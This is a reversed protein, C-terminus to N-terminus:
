VLKGIINELIVVEDLQGKYKEIDAEVSRTFEQIGRTKNYEDISKEVIKKLNVYYSKDLKPNGKADVTYLKGKTYKKVINYYEGMKKDRISREFEVELDKFLMKRAKELLSFFQRRSIGLNVFKEAVKGLEKFDPINKKGTLHEALSKAMKADINAYQKELMKAVNENWRKDAKTIIKDFVDGVSFRLISGGATYLLEDYEPTGKLDHHSEGYYLDGFKRMDVRMKELIERKEKDKPSLKGKKDLESIMMSVVGPVKVSQGTPLRLDMDNLQVTLSDFTQDQSNVFDRAGPIDSRGAMIIKLKKDPFKMYWQRVGSAGSFGFLPAITDWDNSSILNELDGIIANIEANKDQADGTELYEAEEDDPSPPTGGVSAVDDLLAAVTSKTLEVLEKKSLKTEFGQRDTFVYSTGVKKVNAARTKTITKVIETPLLNKIKESKKPDKALSTFAGRSRMKLDGLKADKEDINALVFMLQGRIANAVVDVTEDPKGAEQKYKKVLLDILFSAGEDFNKDHIQSAARIESTLEDAAATNDKLISGVARTIVGRLESESMKNINEQRLISDVDFGYRKNIADRNLQAQAIVEKNKVLGGKKRLGIDARPDYEIGAYDIIYNQLLYNFSLDHLISILVYAPYQFPLENDDFEWTSAYSEGKEIEQRAKKSAEEPIDSLARINALSLSSTPSLEEATPGELDELPIAFGTRPDVKVRIDAPDDKIRATEPPKQVKQEMSAEFRDIVSTLKSEITEMNMQSFHPNISLKAIADEVTLVGSAIRKAMSVLTRLQRANDVENLPRIMNDIVSEFISLERTDMEEEDVIYQQEGSNDIAEDLLEHLKRYFFEIQDGPVENAIVSASRSLEELNAPIYEPDNVPPVDESLQVAMQPNPLIPGESDDMITDMDDSYPTRNESLTYRSIFEELDSKRISINM